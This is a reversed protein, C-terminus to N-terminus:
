SVVNQQEGRKAARRVTEVLRANHFAHEFGPTSYTGAHLDSALLAYVEGMNIAAGM